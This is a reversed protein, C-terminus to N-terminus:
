GHEGADADHAAMHPLGHRQAILLAELDFRGEIEETGAGAVLLLLGDDVVESMEDFLRLAADDVSEGGAPLHRPLDEEQVPVQVEELEPAGVDGFGLRQM